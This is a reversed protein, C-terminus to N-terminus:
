EYYDQNDAWMECQEIVTQLANEVGEPPYKYKKLLRKIMMRMSARASEKKEWDITRSKKLQETLFERHELPVNKHFRM